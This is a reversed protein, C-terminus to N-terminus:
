PSDVQKKKEDSNTTTDLVSKGGGDEESTHSDVTKTEVLEKKKIRISRSGRGLYFVHGTMLIPVVNFGLTALALLFCPEEPRRPHILLDIFAWDVLVMFILTGIFQVVAMAHRQILYSTNYITIQALLVVVVVFLALLYNPSFISFHIIGAALGVTIGLCEILGVLFLSVRGPLIVNKSSYKAGKQHAMEFSLLNKRFQNRKIKAENQGAAEDQVVEYASSDVNAADVILSERPEAQTEQTQTM